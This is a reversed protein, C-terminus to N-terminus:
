EQPGSLAKVLTYNFNIGGTLLQGSRQRWLPPEPDSSTTRIHIKDVLSFTVGVIERERERERQPSKLQCVCVFVRVCMYALVRVCM